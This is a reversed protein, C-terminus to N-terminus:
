KQHFSWLIQIETPYNCASTASPVVPSFALSTKKLCFITDSTLPTISCFFYFNKFIIEKAWPMLRGMHQNSQLQEQLDRALKPWIELCSSPRLSLSTGPFESDSLLYLSAFGQNIGQVAPSTPSSNHGTLVHPVALFGNKGKCPIQCSWLLHPPTVLHILGVDTRSSM